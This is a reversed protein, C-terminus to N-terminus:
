CCRHQSRRVKAILEIVGFALLCVWFDSLLGFDLRAIGHRGAPPLLPTLLLFYIANRVVVAILAKLFNALM